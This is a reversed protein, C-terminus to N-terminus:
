FPPEGVFRGNVTHVRILSQYKHPADREYDDADAERDEPAAEAPETHEAPEARGACAATHLSARLEHVSAVDGLTESIAVQTM